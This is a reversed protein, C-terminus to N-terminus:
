KKEMTKLNVKLDIVELARRQDDAANKRLTNLESRLKENETKHTQIAANAEDTVTKLRQELEISTSKDCSAADTLRKLKTELDLKEAAYKNMQEAHENNAIMAMTKLNKIKDEIMAM